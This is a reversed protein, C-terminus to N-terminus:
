SNGALHRDLFGAVASYIDAEQRPFIGPWFYFGHPM